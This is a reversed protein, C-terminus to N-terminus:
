ADVVEEFGALQGPNKSLVFASRLAQEMEPWRTEECRVTALLENQTLYDGTRSALIVGSPDPFPRDQTQLASQTQVLIGRLRELDITLFGEGAALLEFRRSQRITDVSYNFADLSAGQAELNSQFAPAIESASPLPGDVSSVAKAMAFCQRYHRTLPMDAKGAFLDAIAVLAEGRGIFPQYPQRADTLFCVAEIGVLKAIRIFRVANGKAEEWSSGFNGHPAVRVDLGVKSLGVAIKKSLLSAIGLEPLNVAGHQQRYAFLQGDQPAFRGEALFHVYGCRGLIKIVECEDFQTRYGPIQALVDVGGAPRGPVGLKPIQFGMQRLFLPCLITSLSSPGGTSAIDAWRARDPWKLVTGSKALCCALYAIREDHLEGSRALQIIRDMSGSSAENAFQEVTTHFDM